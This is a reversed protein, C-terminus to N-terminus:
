FFFFFFFFSEDPLVLATSVRHSNTGWPPPLVRRPVGGLAENFTTKWGEQHSCSNSWGTYVGQASNSGTWEGSEYSKRVHTHQDINLAWLTSEASRWLVWGTCSKSEQYGIKHVRATKAEKSNWDWRLEPSWQVRGPNERQAAVQFAGYATLPLLGLARRIQQWREPIM